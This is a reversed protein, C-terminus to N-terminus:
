KKKSRIRRYIMEGFVIFLFFFILVAVFSGFIFLLLTLLDNPSFIGNNVGFYSSGVLIVFFVISLVVALIFEFFYNKKETYGQTKETEDLFDLMEKQEQKNRRILFRKSSNKINQNPNLSSLRGRIVATGVYRKGPPCDLSSAM